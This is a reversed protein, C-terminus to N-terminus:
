DSNMRAKDSPFSLNHVGAGFEISYTIARWLVKIKKDGRADDMKVLQIWIEIPM